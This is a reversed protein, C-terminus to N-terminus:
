TCVNNIFLVDDTITKITRITVNEEHNQIHYTYMFLNEKQYFGGEM